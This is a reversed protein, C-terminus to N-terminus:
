YIGLMPRVGTIVILDGPGATVVGEGNLSARAAVASSRCGPSACDGANVLAAAQGVRDM